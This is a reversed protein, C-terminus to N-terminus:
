NTEKRLLHLAIDITRSQGYPLIRAVWVTRESTINKRTKVEIIAGRFVESVYEFNDTRDWETWTVLDGVSFDNVFSDLFPKNSTNM